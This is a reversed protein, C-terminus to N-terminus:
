PNKKLRADNKTNNKMVSSFTAQPLFQFKIFGTSWIATWAAYNSSIKTGPQNLWYYETHGGWSTSPNGISFIQVKFGHRKPFIDISM